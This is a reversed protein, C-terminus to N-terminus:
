TPRAVSDADFAGVMVCITGLEIAAPLEAVASRIRPLLRAPAVDDGHAPEASVTVHFPVGSV